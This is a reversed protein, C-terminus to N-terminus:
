IYFLYLGHPTFTTPPLRISTVDTTILARVTLTVTGIKYMAFRLIYYLLQKDSVRSTDTKNYKAGYCFV